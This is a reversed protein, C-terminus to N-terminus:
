EDDDFKIKTGQFTATSLKNALQRKAEWSPHMLEITPKSTRSPKKRFTKDTKSTGEAGRPTNKENLHEAKRGYMEAWKKRRECEGPRNKKVDIETTKPDSLSGIITTEMRATPNRRGTSEGGDLNNGRKSTTQNRKCAHQKSKPTKRPSDRKLPNSHNVSAIFEQMETQVKVLEEQVSPKKLFEDSVSKVHVAGPNVLEEITMSYAADSLKQTDLCKISEVPM